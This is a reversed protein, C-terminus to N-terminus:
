MCFFREEVDLTMLVHWQNDVLTRELTHLQDSYLYSCWVDFWLEEKSKMEGEKEGMRVVIHFLQNCHYLQSKHWPGFGGSM